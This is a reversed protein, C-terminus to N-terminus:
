NSVKTSTLTLTRISKDISTVYKTSMPPESESNASQTSFIVMSRDQESSSMFYKPLNQSSIYVPYRNKPSISAKTSPNFSPSLTSSSLSPVTTTDDGGDEGDPQSTTTVGDENQNGNTVINNVIDKITEGIEGADQVGQLLDNLEIVSGPKLMATSNANVNNEESTNPVIESTSNNTTSQTSSLSPVIWTSSPTVTGTMDFSSLPQKTILPETSSGLGSALNNSALQSTQSSFLKPAMSSSMPSLSRTNFVITPSVEEISSLITHSGSFLTIFHTLTTHTSVTETILSSSPFTMKHEESKNRAPGITPVISSAMITRTMVLPERLTLYETKVEELPTILTQTGNFLTAFYTFTSYLTSTTLVDSTEVVVSLSSPELKPVAVLTSLTEDNPKALTLNPEIQTTGTDFQVTPTSFTESNTMWYPQLTSEFSPSIFSSEPLSEPRTVVKSNTEEVTTYITSTGFTFPVTHTTTEYLTEVTSSPEIGISDLSVQTSKFIKRSSVRIRSAYMPSWNNVAGAIRSFVKYRYRSSKPSTIPSQSSTASIDFSVIPTPSNPVSQISSSAIATSELFMSSSSSYSQSPLNESSTARNHLLIHSSPRRSFFRNIGSYGPKRVTFSVKKRSSLIPTSVSEINFSPTPEVNISNSSAISDLIMPTMQLMSYSQSSSSSINASETNISSIPVKSSIRSLQNVLKSRIPKVKVRIPRRSSSPRVRSTPQTLEISSSPALPVFSSHLMIQSTLKPTEMQTSMSSAENEFSSVSEELSSFLSASQTPNFTLEPVAKSPQIDLQINKVGDFQIYNNLALNVVTTLHGHARSGLPVTKTPSIVHLVGNGDITPDVSATLTALDGVFRTTTEEMRTSFRTNTGEIFTYFYTYKAIQKKAKNQLSELKIASTSAPLDVQLGQVTQVPESQLFSPAGSSSAANVNSSHPLHPRTAFIVKYLDENFVQVRSAVNYITTTLGKTKTGLAMQTRSPQIFGDNSEIATVINRDIPKILMTTSVQERSLLATHPGRLVTTFYTYTTYYTLPITPTPVPQQVTTRAPEFTSSRSLSEIMLVGNDASGSDPPTYRNGFNIDTEEENDLANPKHSLDDDQANIPGRGRLQDSNAIATPAPSTVRRNSMEFMSRAPTTPPLTTLNKIKIRRTGGSPPKVRRFSQRPPSNNQVFGSQLQPQAFSPTTQHASVMGAVRQFNMLPSENPSFHSVFEPPPPPLRNQKPPLPPLPPPTTHPLGSPASQPKNLRIRQFSPRTNVPSGRPVPATLIPVLNPENPSLHRNTPVDFQLLGDQRRMLHPSAQFPRLAFPTEDLYPFVFFFFFINANTLM